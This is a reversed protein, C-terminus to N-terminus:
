SISLYLDACIKLKGLKKIIDAAMTDAMMTDVMM